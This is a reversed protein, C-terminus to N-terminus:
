VNESVEEWVRTFRFNFLTIVTLILFIIITIASAFAYDNGRGGAFALRYTYTILIDTHGAPTAAGAIPPGGENFLYIVNFNNFNFTFSSILIPGVSVLLLPLTINYFRQWVTAGDVHAAEYIDEPISQLAGSCILMMYPYGLWLQIIIIAIKAWTPDLGWPPAWGLLDNLTTNVVGLRPNLLGRWMLVAIVSPITYPIILLSRILRRGTMAPENFVLAVLLGLAFTVLVSILAFAFTWIFVRLLPGQIASSSLIRRFNNAGITVQYGPLLAEGDEAIFSGQSSDAIYVKETAQDVLADRADDYVYRATTAAAERVSRVHVTAPPEGFEITSLQQIIPVVERRQLRRYGDITAPVGEEDLDGLEAEQGPTIPQGERVVYNDGEADTLWLLYEDAENRYAVWAYTLGGEPLYQESTKQNIVQQKTLIHGDSYNTFATYVTFLVPYLAMLFMLALGPAMWRIPTLRESLFVVNIGVTVVILMAAFPYYGDNLLQYILWLGFADIVFLAFLRFLLNPVLSTQSRKSTITPDMACGCNGETGLLCLVSEM